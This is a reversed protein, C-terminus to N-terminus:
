KIEAGCTRVAYCRERWAATTQRSKGLAYRRLKGSSIGLSDRVAGDQRERHVCLGAPGYMHRACRASM